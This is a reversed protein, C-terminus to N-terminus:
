LGWLYLAWFGGKWVFGLESGKECKLNFGRPVQIFVCVSTKNEGHKRLGSPMPGTGFLYHKFDQGKAKMSKWHKLFLEPSLPPLCHATHGPLWSALPPDWNQRQCSLKPVGKGEEHCNGWKYVPTPIPWVTQVKKWNRKALRLGDKVFLGKCECQCM